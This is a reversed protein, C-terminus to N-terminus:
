SRRRFALAAAAAGIGLGGLVIGIIGFTRASDATSRTDAVSADIRPVERNLLGAIDATTPVKTPFEVSTPDEVLSFTTPGSTFSEDVKQGKISGHFHFTYKGVATPFFYADYEGPTGLGTDPDFSPELALTKKQAGVEVDVKLSSGLDAVAKGAKTALFFQVFNEQGLYAPENGFGVTFRYAGVTRIEHASAPGATCVLMAAAAVAM